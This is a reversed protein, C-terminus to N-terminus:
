SSRYYPSTMHAGLRMKDALRVENMLRRTFRKEIELIREEMEHMVEERTEAEVVASRM